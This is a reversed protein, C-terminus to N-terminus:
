GEIPPQNEQARVDNIIQLVRQRFPPYQVGFEEVLRRNDILYNNGTSEVGGSQHEFRIDADPLFEKVMAAIEGLSIATGGSNYIRHRPKDAMVVRALVEATDDVHIPCWIADKYPFSISRGRAPQTICNVHDISGRVKDAGTVNAPRVGTITMGYKQIYDRAQWENFIKHASYQETGYPYDEETIMREGYHKQMGNVALSSVYVVHGIQCLRAAEFFNDMGLVNLRMARHPAHYSDLFYSLNIARDARAETMAGMVDDFQTIDGRVVKVSENLDDFQGPIPNIDMCVVEQGRAVLLRILRSGIFGTGGAVFVAM